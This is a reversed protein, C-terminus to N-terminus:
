LLYNSVDIGNIKIFVYKEGSLSIVNNSTYSTSNNYTTNLFGLNEYLESNGFTM